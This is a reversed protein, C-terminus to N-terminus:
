GKAGDLQTPKRDSADHGDEAQSRAHRQLRGDALILAFLGALVAKKARQVCHEARASYRRGVAM